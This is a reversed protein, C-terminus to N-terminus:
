SRVRSLKARPRVGSREAAHSVVLLSETRLKKWESHHTAQPEYRSSPLSPVM